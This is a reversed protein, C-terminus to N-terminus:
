SRIDGREQVVHNPISNLLEIVRDLLSPSIRLIAFFDHTNRSLNRFLDHARRVLERNIRLRGPRTQGTASSAAFVRM